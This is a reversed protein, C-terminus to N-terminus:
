GDLLDWARMVALPPYAKGIRDKLLAIDEVKLDVTQSAYIDQALKGYRCKDVPSIQEPQGHEPLVTLLAGVALKGLTTSEGKEDPITEGDLNLILESFNIEM